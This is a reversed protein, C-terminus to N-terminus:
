KRSDFRGAPFAAPLRMMRRWGVWLLVAALVIDALALVGWPLPVVLQRVLLFALALCTMGGVGVIGGRAAGSPRLAAYDRLLLVALPLLLTALAPVRTWDDDVAGRMYLRDIACACLTALLWVRAFDRLLIRAFPRNFRSASPLGPALRLLGQEAATRSIATVVAGLYTTVLTLFVILLPGGSAGHLFSRWSPAALAVLFILMVALALLVPTGWHARPGAALLALTMPAPRKGTAANARGLMAFYFPQWLRGRCAGAPAAEAAGKLWGFREDHRQLARWHGDGGRPFVARLAAPLGVMLLLLGGAVVLEEMSLPAWSLQRALLAAVPVQALVIVALPMAVMALVFRQALMITALLCGLAIFALSFHGFGAAIVAALLLAMATGIALTTRVLRSRLQPVLAAHAPTNQAVASQLFRGWWVLMLAGLLGACAAAQLDHSGSLLVLVSLVSLEGLLWAKWRSRTGRRALLPQLLIQRYAVLASSPAANM